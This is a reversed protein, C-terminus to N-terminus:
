DTCASIKETLAALIPKGLPTRPWNPLFHLKNSRSFPPLSNNWHNFHTLIQNSPSTEILAQLQHGRRKDPLPIITTPHEPFLAALQSRLNALDVLEGLIKIQTDARGLLHLDPNVLDSTTFWSDTRPHFENAVIQGTFLGPGAIQLLNQPSPRLKWGPLPKLTGNNEIAIIGATETMGYSTVLPWSLKRASNALHPELKAGGILALRLSPPPPLNHRVLDHIQTPVLSTLTAQTQTLFALFNTPNWKQDFHSVPHNALQARRSVMFGGVHFTPLALAAQDNSTINFLTNFTHANWDLADESHLIWKPTGTTGSTAFLHGKLHQGSKKKLGLAEEKLHPPTHITLM